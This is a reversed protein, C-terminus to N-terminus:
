WDVVSVAKRCSSARPFDKMGRNGHGRQPFRPPMRVEIETFWISCVGVFLVGAALFTLLRNVWFRVQERRRGRWIFIIVAVLLRRLALVVFVFLLTLLFKQGIALNGSGIEIGLISFGLVVEM